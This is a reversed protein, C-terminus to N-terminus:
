WGNHKNGGNVNSSGNQGTSDHGWSSGSNNNNNNSNDNWGNGGSNGGSNDDNGYSQAASMDGWPAPNAPPGWDNNANGHSQQQQTSDNNNNNWCSGSNRNASRQPGNSNNFNQNNSNQNGHDWGGGGGGSNSNNNNCNWDNGGSNNNPSSTPNNSAQNNDDNGWAGGSNNNRSLGNDGWEGVGSNNNANNNSSDNWGGGGSSGNGNNHNNDSNTNGWGDGGSNDNNSNHQNSNVGWGGSSNNNNNDGGWGGRFNGNNNSSPNNFNQNGNDSDWPKAPAASNQHPTICQGHNIGNNHNQNQWGNQGALAFNNGSTNQQSNAPESSWEGGSNNNNGSQQGGSNQNGGSGSNDTNGNQQNRFWSSGSNNNNYSNNKSSDKYKWGKPMIGEAMADAESATVTQWGNDPSQPPPGSTGGLTNNFNGGGSDNPHQINSGVGSFHTSSSSANRSQTHLHPGATPIPTSMSPPGGGIFQGAHPPYTGIPVPPHPLLTAYPNGYQVGHYVRLVGTKSCFFANPRPDSPAEIVDERMIVQARVPQIIQAHQAHMNLPRQDTRTRVRSYNSTNPTNSSLNTPPPTNHRSNYRQNKSCSEQCSISHSQIPISLFRDRQQNCCGQDSTPIHGHTASDSLNSYFDIQQSRNNFYVSPRDDGERLSDSCQRDLGTGRNRLTNERTIFDLCRYRKSIENSYCDKLESGRKLCLKAKPEGEQAFKVKKPTTDTKSMQAYKKKGQLPKGDDAVDKKKVLKIATIRPRGEDSSFTASSDYEAESLELTFSRRRLSNSIPENDTSPNWEQSPKNKKEKQDTEKKPSENEAPNLRKAARQNLNSPPTAVKKSAPKQLTPEKVGSVWEFISDAPRVLYRASM